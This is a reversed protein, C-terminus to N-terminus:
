GLDLENPLVSPRYRKSGSLCVHRSYIICYRSGIHHITKLIILRNLSNLSNLLGFIYFFSFHVILNKPIFGLFSFLSLSSFFSAGGVQPGINVKYKHQTSEGAVLFSNSGVQQLLYLRVQRLRGM